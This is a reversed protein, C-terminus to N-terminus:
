PRGERRRLRAAAVELAVSARAALYWARLIM